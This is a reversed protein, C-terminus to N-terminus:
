RLVQLARRSPLAIEISAVAQEIAGLPADQGLRQLAEDLRYGHSLAQDVQMTAFPALLREIAVIDDSPSAIADLAGDPRDVPQDRTDLLPDVTEADALGALIAPFSTAEICHTALGAARAAAAGLRSRGALVRVANDRSKRALAAILNGPPWRGAALARSVYSFGAGAAQHTGACALAWGLDGVPGDALTITPKSFCELRWILEAVAPGADRSADTLDLRTVSDDLHIAYLDPNRAWLPFQRGLSHAATSSLDRQDRAVVLLANRRSVRWGEAHWYLDELAM